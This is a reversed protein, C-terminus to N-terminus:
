NFFVKCKSKGTVKFFIELKMLTHNKLVLELFSPHISIIESMLLFM